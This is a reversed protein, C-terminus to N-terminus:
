IWLAAGTWGRDAAGGAVLVGYASGMAEITSGNGLSIAVHTPDGSMRFLLAGRIGLATSVPITVGAAQCTAWQSKSPKTLQRGAHATAGQVLGSCDWGSPGNGGWVYADGQQALAFHVMKERAPNAAASTGGSSGATGPDGAQDPLFTDEGKEGPGGTGKPEKLLHQARILKVDARTTTLGHRYESVMWKGDTAPFDDQIDVLDGPLILGKESDVTTTATSARRGVDLDFDVPGWPGSNENVVLAKDNRALLWKDSGAILRKGNSFRRAQVKSTVTGAVDWSSAGKTREVLEHVKRALAPDISYKVRAGRALQVLLERQTVSNAPWRYTKKDRRMAGVVADEFTLTVDNGSKAAKVLEFHVGDVIAWSRAVFADSRALKRDTDRVTVSLTSAGDITLTLDPAAIIADHLQLSTGADPTILTLAEVLKDRDM